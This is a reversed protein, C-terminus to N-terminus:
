FHIYLKLISDDFWHIIGIVELNSESKATEVKM